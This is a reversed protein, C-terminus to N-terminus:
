QGQAFKLFARAIAEGDHKNDVVAIAPAYIADNLIGTAHRADLLERVIAGTFEPHGQVTVARGPLLFGQVPCSDTSALSVAGPPFALVADRHM